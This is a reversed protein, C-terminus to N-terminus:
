VIPPRFLGSQFDYISLSSVLSILRDSKLSFNFNLFPSLAFDCHGLHCVHCDSVNQHESPKDNSEQHSVQFELPRESVLSEAQANFSSNKEICITDKSFVSLFTLVSFILAFFM